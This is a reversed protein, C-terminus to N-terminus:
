SRCGMRVTVAPFRAALDGEASTVESNSASVQFVGVAAEGTGTREVTVVANQAKAYIPLVDEVRLAALAAGLEEGSLTPGVLEAWRAFVAHAGAAAASSGASARLTRAVARVFVGDFPDAPAAAPLVRPLFVSTVFFQFSAM